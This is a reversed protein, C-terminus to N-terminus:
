RGEASSKGRQLVVALVIIVGQIAGNLYPSVLDALNLINDILSLIRVGVVTGWVRGYGGKLATGGIIVAASGRSYRAENETAAYYVGNGEFEELRALPLQRWTVGTAVVVARAQV